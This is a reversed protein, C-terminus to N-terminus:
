EKLVLNHNRLFISIAGSVDRGIKNGCENCNYIKSAGLDNKVNGCRCCTSVFTCMNHM